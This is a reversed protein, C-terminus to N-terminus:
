SFVTCSCGYAINYHYRVVIAINNSVYEKACMNKERMVLRHPESTMYNRSAQFPQDEINIWSSILLQDVKVKTKRREVFSIDNLGFGIASRETRLYM